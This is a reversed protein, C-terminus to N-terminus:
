GESPIWSPPHPLKQDLSTLPPQIALSISRHLLVTDSVSSPAPAPTWATRCLAHPLCATHLPPRRWVLVPHWSASCPARHRCASDGLPSDWIRGPTRMDREERESGPSSSVHLVLVACSSFACHLLLLVSRCRSALKARRRRTGHPPAQSVSPPRPRRPVPSSTTSRPARHRVATCTGLTGSSHPPARAATCRAHRLVGSCAARTCWTPVRAWTVKRTARPRGGSRRRPVGRRRDCIIILTQPHSLLERPRKTPVFRSKV